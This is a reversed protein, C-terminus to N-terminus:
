RGGHVWRHMKIDSIMGIKITTIDAKEFNVAILLQTVITENFVLINAKLASLGGPLPFTFLCFM